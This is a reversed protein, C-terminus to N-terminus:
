VATTGARDHGARTEALDKEYSDSAAVNRLKVRRGRYAIGAGAWISVERALLASVIVFPDRLAVGYMSAAEQPTHAIIGQGLLGVGVTGFYVFVALALSGLIYTWWAARNLILVLLVFGIIYFLVPIYFRADTLFTFSLRGDGIRGIMATAVALLAAFAVGSLVALLAGIGRNGKKLPASPAHIYVVHPAPAPTGAEEIPVVLTQAVPAAMPEAVIPEDVIEAHVIDADIIDDKARRGSKPEPTVTEDTM